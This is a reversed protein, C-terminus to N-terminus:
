LNIIKNPYDNNAFRDILYDIDTIYGVPIRAALEWPQWEELGWHECWGDKFEEFWILFNPDSYKKTEYDKIGIDLLPRLFLWPKSLQCINKLDNTEGDQWYKYPDKGLEHASFYCYGKKIATTAYKLFKRDFKKILPGALEKYDVWICNRDENNKELLHILDHIELWKKHDKDKNFNNFYLDHLENLYEQAKLKQFDVSFGLKKFNNVLNEALSNETYSEDLPNERPGFQLEINKLRTICRYYYDSLPNELLNLEVFNGSSWSIILKKESM